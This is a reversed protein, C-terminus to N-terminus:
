CAVKNVIILANATWCVSVPMSMDVLQPTAQRYDCIVMLIIHLYLTVEFM